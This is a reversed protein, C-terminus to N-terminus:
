EGIKTVPRIKMGEVLRGVGVAVIRMGPTVGGVAEVMAGLTAGLAVPRASVAGDEDVVWVFPAGDPAAAIATLPLRPVRARGPASVSVRALMGPLVLAGEPPMVAVEGRYTQTASDAQVSFEVMEADFVQGPLADFEAKTVIGDVGGRSLAVVDPGPIDFELHLPQLGQLLAVGQGAQINTFADVERRAIIGAFPATLVTDSLDDRAAKLQADLGRLAAEAAAIEEPRGGIEGIRLQEQQAQLNAEAVGFQAEASELQAGAAVGREVLQRTRELADRAQEFQARASAVAARLAALEEPRAGARLAELQAAAQARQAAIQAARNEFDRPDLRAIVAGEAVSQAARVPLDEIRGSVRFSLAAQRSPQAIAPYTRLIRSEADEVVHIKAPRPIADQAAGQAPALLAACCLGPLALFFKM